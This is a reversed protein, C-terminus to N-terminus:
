GTVDYTEDLLRDDTTSRILHTAVKWRDHMLASHLVTSRDNPDRLDADTLTLDLETVIRRCLREVGPVDNHSVADLLQRRVAETEEHSKTSAAASVASSPVAGNISV